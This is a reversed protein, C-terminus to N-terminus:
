LEDKVILDKLTFPEDTNPNIEAIAISEGKANEYAWKSCEEWSGEFSRLNEGYGAIFSFRGKIKNNEM